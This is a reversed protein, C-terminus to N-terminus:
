ANRGESLVVFPLGGQQFARAQSYKKLRLPSPSAVNKSESWTSRASKRSNWINNQTPHLARMKQLPTTKLIKRAEGSFGPLPPACEAQKEQNSLKTRLPSARWKKLANETTKTQPECSHGCASVNALINQIEPGSKHINTCKGNSTKRKKAGM